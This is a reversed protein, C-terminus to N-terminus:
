RSAYKIWRHSTPLLTPVSTAMKFLESIESSILPHSRLRGAVRVGLAIPALKGRYGHNDVNAKTPLRVLMARRVRIRGFLRPPARQQWNPRADGGLHGCRECRMRPEFWPVPVDDGYREVDVVGHHCWGLGSCWVGLTRVGNARMNGLTMPPSFPRM